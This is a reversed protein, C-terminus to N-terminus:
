AHFQVRYEEPDIRADILAPGGCRLAEDLARRFEAETEARFGALGYADALKVFDPNGFRTGLLAYRQAEQKRVIRDLAGDDFVVVVVGLRRDAATGLEGSVMALGGDGTFCVVRRDPLLLQAALAAPLAFGMTGLGNSMFFTRPLETRWLGGLLMKHSGVDSVVVSTPDLIERAAFVVRSPTLGDGAVVNRRLYERRWDAVERETWRPAGDGALDALGELAASIDGVLDLESVYVDDTNPLFDVHVVPTRHKWPMILEVPDFGVALLLDAGGVFRDMGHAGAMEIVGAWYPHSEPLVGKAKPTTVVPVGWREAMRRLPACAGRRLATYGAVVLPRRARALARAAEEVGEPPGYHVRAELAWGPSAEECDASVHDAPLDLHVPGPREAVALRLGRHMQRRFSPGAVMTSWKTIPAFLGPQDLRQHSHSGAGLPTRGTVVLMPSRDLLANATANAANTAGPGLTTLLVGPRGTVDGHMAAMYGAAWESHALVFDVGRQSAREAMEVTAGGPFGFTHRVGEHRLIEGFAEAVSRAGSEM